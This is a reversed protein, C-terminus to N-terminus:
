TRDMMDLSARVCVPLLASTRVPHGDRCRPRLGHTYRPWRRRINKKRHVRFTRYVRFSHFPLGVRRPRRFRRTANRSPYTTDHPIPPTTLSLHHRTTFVATVHHLFGFSQDEHEHTEHLRRVHLFIIFSRISTSRRRQRTVPILVGRWSSRRQEQEAM